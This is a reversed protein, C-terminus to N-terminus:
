GLLLAVSYASAEKLMASAEGAWTATTSMKHDGLPVETVGQLKLDALEDETALGNRAGNNHARFAAEDALV